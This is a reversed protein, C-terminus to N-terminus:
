GRMRFHSLRMGTLALWAFYVTMSAVIVASMMGARELVGWALWQQLPPVLWWLGAGLLGCGGGVQLWFRRWGPQVVLVGQRLLGRALLGANVYAALATALALGAHALPWVLVLNFAMNAAMAIVGIRVPTRTDQRAYFGPALVKILMYAIVGFALARLSRATMEIDHDTMAGYHFLTVLLPEALLFIALAAPLSIVLVMRLAWDLMRSFHETSQSAHRRSLAPLIVTAIAVGFIGIPLEVLRDSYYLWSVSGTVLFSALITNLLMNIQAVSVGFLAPGMLKLIRRVGPHSFDPRPRPLLGLRGLFPLQFGLQIVGAALVGWALGMAPVELRPSLWLVAAIMTLNLFVPTLAPIAFRNWSNLVASCFATLSILLLYPFTIRLMDSTLALKGADSSFGPAFIWVLWPSLLVAVLTILTLVMALSGATADLLRRTERPDDKTAYESLVPVFAQNFAGEAFLRRLLNPIRFAVFFADAGGGAGLLSAIMVDRVMGLVRSIMTMAGVVAGSRLLGAVKREKM